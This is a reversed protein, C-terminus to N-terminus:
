RTFGPVTQAASGLGALTVVGVVASLAQLMVLGPLLVCLAFGSHSTLVNNNDWCM